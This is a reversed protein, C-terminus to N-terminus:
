QGSSYIKIFQVMPRIDKAFWNVTKYTESVEKVNPSNSSLVINIKSYEPSKRIRDLLEIGGMVPMNLDLIILYPLEGKSLEDLAQAGNYAAIVYFGENQLLETTLYQYFFNDDVILITKRAM